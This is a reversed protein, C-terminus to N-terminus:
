VSRLVLSTSIDHSKDTDHQEQPQLRSPLKGCRL